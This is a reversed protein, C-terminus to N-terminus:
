LGNEVLTIDRTSSILFSLSFNREFIGRVPFSRLAPKGNPPTKRGSRFKEKDKKILEM